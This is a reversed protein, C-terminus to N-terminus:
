FKMRFSLLLLLCIHEKLLCCFPAQKGSGAALWNPGSNKQAYNSLELTLVVLMLPVSDEAVLSPVDDESPVLAPIDM